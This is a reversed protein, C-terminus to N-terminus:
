TVTPAIYCRGSVEFKTYEGDVVYDAQLSCKGLVMTATNGLTDALLLDLRLMYAETATELSVASAWTGTRQIASLVANLALSGAPVIVQTSFEYTKKQGPIGAYHDMRDRIDIIEAGGNGSLGPITVTGTGPGLSQSKGSGDRVTLTLHAANFPM